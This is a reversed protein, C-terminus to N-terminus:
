VKRFKLRDHMKSAAELSLSLEMLNTLVHLINYIIETFITFSRM